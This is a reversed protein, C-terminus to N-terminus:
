KAKAHAKSKAKTASGKRKGKGKGKGGHGSPSQAGQSPAPLGSAGQGGALPGPLDNVGACYGAGGASNNSWTSQVAFRGGQNGTMNGLAGPVPLVTPGVGLLNYGVYACKDGNENADVTDYWGGLYKLSGAANQVVDEAGPDTLTEMIEHGLVISFADDTGQPPQNVSNEACDNAGGSVIANVYPMNTYSIGPTIGNYIGGELSPQTYDHFACYGSSLANPDSFAPPQAIVINADNLDTIGFHAVARQAEQAMLTYTNTAGPPNTSNSTAMPAAPNTDDAWAGALWQKDNSINTQNGSADTQYYQSGVGAWQSAGMQSVFNAMYKGTGETDCGLTVSQTGAQTPVSFSESSCNTPIGAANKFAGAQGWGWYVLYIKPHVQVHGGYYAMNGPFPVGAAPTEPVPTCGLEAYLPCPPAPPNIARYAPAEAQQKQLQAQRTPLKIPTAQAAGAVGLAGALGLALTALRTRNTIV